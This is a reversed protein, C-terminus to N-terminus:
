FVASCELGASFSTAGTVGTSNGYKHAGLRFGLGFAPTEGWWYRYGVSGGYGFQSLEQAARDLAESDYKYVYRNVAYVGEPSVYFQQNPSRYLIIPLGLRLQSSSFNVHSDVYNASSTGFLYGLEMGLWSKMLFTFSIGWALHSLTPTDTVSTHYQPLWFSVLFAVDDAAKKPTAREQTMESWIRPENGNKALQLPLDIQRKEGGRLNLDTREEHFGAKRVRLPHRGASLTKPGFPTYGVMQADVFVEAGAPSSRITVQANKLPLDFHKANFEDKAVELDVALPSSEAHTIEVKLAKNAPVELNALPTTGLLKGNVVINANSPETTISLRAMAPVLPKDVKLTKGPTLLIEEQVTEFAPHDLRLTHRGAEIVGKLRMPTVGYSTGDINVSAGPPQTNLDLTGNKRGADASGQESFEPTAEGRATALRSRERSIEALPYRYLVWVDFKGDVSKQFFDVQEFGFVRIDQSLVQVRKTSVVNKSSEYADSQIRTQFGFNERIAQEYAERTAENFGTQETPSSSSRGLYYKYTSDAPKGRQVWDPTDSNASVGVTLLCLVFLWSRM